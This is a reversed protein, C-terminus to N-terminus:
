RSVFSSITLRVTLGSLDTTAVVEVGTATVFFLVKNNAYDYVAFYAGSGDNNEFKCTGLTGKMDADTALDMAEGGTTYSAPGVATYVNKYHGGSGQMLVDGESYIKTYSTLAM